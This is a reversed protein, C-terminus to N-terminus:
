AATQSGRNWLFYETVDLEMGLGVIKDPLAPLECTM